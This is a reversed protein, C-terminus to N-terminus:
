IKKLFESELYKSIEEECEKIDYNEEVKSLNMQIKYYMLDFKRMANELEEFRIRLNNNEWREWLREFSSEEKDYKLVFANIFSSNPILYFTMRYHEKFVIYLDDKYVFSMFDKLRSIFLDKKGSAVIPNLMNTRIQFASGLGKKRDGLKDLDSQAIIGTLLSRFSFSGINIEYNPVNKVVSGDKLAFEKPLPEGNKGYAIGKQTKLSISYDGIWVDAKERENSALDGTMSWNMGETFSDYSKLKDPILSNVRRVTDTPKCNFLSSFIDEFTRASVSRDRVQIDSVFSFLINGLLCGSFDNNQILEKTCSLFTNMEEINKPYSSLSSKKVISNGIIKLRSFLIKDFIM